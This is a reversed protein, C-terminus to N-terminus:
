KLREQARVLDPALQEALRNGPAIQGVEGGAGFPVPVLEDHVPLLHPGRVRMEAVERDQEGAGVDVRRLMAPDREEEDVQVRRADFDAGEALDGAGRM